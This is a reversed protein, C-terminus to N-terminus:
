QNGPTAAGAFNENVAEAAARYDRWTKNPIEFSADYIQRESGLELPVAPWAFSHESASVCGKAPEILREWPESDREIISGGQLTGDTPGM